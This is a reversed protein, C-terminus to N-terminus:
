VPADAPIIERKRFGATMFRFAAKRRTLWAVRAGNADTRILAEALWPTVTEVKDGLINYIKRTREWEQKTTSGIDRKLLDTFVIGPSLYCIKVPGGRTEALLCQNFYTLAYKSAGYIMMDLTKMGNSGFGEMNYITGSGQATMERLAVQTALMMGLLNTDIVARVDAPRMEGFRQRPHSIGANNIWVDVRGFARAATNWLNQLDALKSVDCAAGVVRAGDRAGAEIEAVAQRVAADSRGSIAVDQGRKALEHALGHGIGRTSGTVVFSRKGTMRAM